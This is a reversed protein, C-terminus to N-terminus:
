VAVAAATWEERRGVRWAKRPRERPQRDARETIVPTVDAHDVLSPWTHAVVHGRAVAWRGITEDIPRRKRPDRELYEVLDAVCDNLVAVGVASWTRPALIWSAQSGARVVANAIRDQAYPPRERGLYLSVIPSPAVALAAHLADRFGNIPQADDELVVSWGTADTANDCLWSWVDRHNGECGLSGDDLSIHQAGVSRSLDRAMM